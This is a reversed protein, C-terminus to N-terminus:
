IIYGGEKLVPLVVERAMRMALRSYDNVREMRIVVAIPHGSTTGESDVFFCYLADNSKRNSKTRDTRTPTGTKGGIHTSFDGFRGAAQAKMCEQLVRAEDASFLQKYVFTSDIDKYRPYMMVGDNAVAAVYRCLSLPTMSVEGQGWSPQFEADILRHKEGSAEYKAFKQAAARGFEEMQTKYAAEKTIAQDPYLVYPTSTGFNAGVAYCLEALEPYLGMEGYGNVLKEFYVNSSGVIALQLSVSGTPEGLSIDVIEDKFVIQNFEQGALATSFRMLGAGASLLKFTSGPALPALALDMDCFAKFGPTWDRYVNENLLQRQKLIDQNPHPYMSSFLLSGDRADTGVVVVRTLDTIKGERNMRQVFNEIQKALAIQFDADITLSIEREKKRENWERVKKDSIMLPVLEPYVEIKKSEEKNIPFDPLYPSYHQSSTLTTDKIVPSFGSLKSADLYDVLLGAPHKRSTGYLTMRTRDGTEFFTDDGYPYIRTGYEGTTALINKNRDLIDGRMTRKLTYDIMPNEVVIREGSNNIFIGPHILYKERAFVGYYFITMIAWVAAILYARLQSSAMSAYRRTNICELEFDRYRSLSLLIGVCFLDIAHSTGGYSCFPLNIGTIPITGISGLIILVTELGFSLGILSGLAFGFRHGNRVAIKFAQYLLVAISLLVIIGGMVGMNEVISEFALDTHGAPLTSSLGSKPAGWLGGRAVAWIGEAIQSGGVVENDFIHRAIETRGNLREAIREQGIISFLTGGHITLLVVLSLAIPSAKIRGHRNYSYLSWGAAFIVFIAFPLIKYQNFKNLVLLVVAFAGTGIIMPVTEKVILSFIFIATIAIVLFPGLDSIMFQLVGLFFLALLVTSIILLQKWTKGPKSYAELLDGRCAIVVSLYGILTIRILPSGQISLFPLTVHTGGPGDGLLLLVFAIGIATMAMWLGQTSGGGSALHVRSSFSYLRTWDVFAGVILLVLGLVVGKELQSWAYLDGWVPNQLNFLNVLGMGSLLATVALLELNSKSRRNRDLAAMLLYVLIWLASFVAIASMFKDRYERTSRILVSNDNRMQKLVGKGLLPLIARERIFSFSRHGHNYTGRAQGFVFGREYPLLSFHRKMGQSEKVPLWITAKGSVPIWAYVSDRSHCDLVKGEKEIIKRYHERVCLYVTDRCLGWKGKERIKITYKRSIAADSIPQKTCDVDGGGALQEARYSLGPYNAISVFGAPDLTIGFRTDTLGKIGSPRKGGKRIEGIYRHSIYSAEGDDQVYGRSTLVSSFADAATHENILVARGELCDKEAQMLTDSQAKYIRIALLNVIFLAAILYLFSKMQKM